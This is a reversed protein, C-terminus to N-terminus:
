GRLFDAGEEDGGDGRIAAAEELGVRVRIEKEVQHVFVAGFAAVLEVGEDEHGVMEMEEECGRRVDGDLFGHLVDFSAEGEAKFGFHRDPFLAERKAADFVRAVVLRMPVIDVRVGDLRMEAFIRVGGWPGGCIRREGDIRGRVM